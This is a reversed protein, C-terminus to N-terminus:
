APGLPITWADHQQQNAAILPHASRHSAQIARLL